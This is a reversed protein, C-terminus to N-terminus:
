HIYNGFTMGMVQYVVPPTNIRLFLLMGGSSISKIQETELIINFTIRTVQLGPLIHL